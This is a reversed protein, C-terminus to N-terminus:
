TKKQLATGFLFIFPAGIFFMTIPHRYFRYQIKNWRTSKRYEDVTMTWVDGIGRKDLNGATEHHIQHNYGWSYYPTFTLVGIFLGIADRLRRSKFYSGHVCDHYIIFLRVLIGAAPISLGLTIWYSLSLSEFMLFWAISYIFLNLSLQLWSKLRNPHNYRSVIKIWSTKSTEGQIEPSSM